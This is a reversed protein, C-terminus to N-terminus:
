IACVVLEGGARGRWCGRPDTSKRVTGWRVYRGSALRAFVVGFGPRTIKVDIYAIGRTLNDKYDGSLQFSGGPGNHHFNCEQKVLYNGGKYVACQATKASAFSPAAVALAAAALAILTTKM